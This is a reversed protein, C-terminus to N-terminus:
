SGRGGEELAAIFTRAHLTWSNQKAIRIRKSRCDSGQERLSDKIAMAFQEPTDGLIVLSDQEFQELELLRTSVVPKGLAFYEFVKVPNTTRAIDGLKFPILCVDFANIYLPMENYPKRGLWHINPSGLLQRQREGSEVPGVFVFSAEPVLKACKVVLDYDFWGAISGVYGAIPRRISALDEPITGSAAQSRFWEDDVGNPIRHVPKPTLSRIQQELEAATTIIVDSLDLLKQEYARFRELSAHGAYISIDDLCDYAIRDFDGTRLVRGWFPNIVVAIGDGRKRRVVERDLFIRLVSANLWEVFRSDLRNAPLMVPMSLVEMEVSGSERRKGSGLLLGLPAFLHYAISKLITRLRNPEVPLDRFGTPQIYTVKHGNALFQAALKQPRQHLYDYRIPSFLFIHM